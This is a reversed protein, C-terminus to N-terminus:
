FSIDKALEARIAAHEVACAKGEDTEKWALYALWDENLVNTPIEAGDHRLVGHKTPVYKM